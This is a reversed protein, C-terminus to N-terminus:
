KIGRRTKYEKSRKYEVPFTIKYNPGIWLNMHTNPSELCIDLPIFNDTDKADWRKKDSM